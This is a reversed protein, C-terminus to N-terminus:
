DIVSLILMWAMRGLQFALTIATQTALIIMEPLVEYSSSLDNFIKCVGRVILNLTEELLFCWLTSSGVYGVLVFVRGSAARGEM